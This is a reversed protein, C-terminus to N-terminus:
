CIYMALHSLCIHQACRVTLERWAKRVGSLLLLMKVQVALGAYINIASALVGGVVLAGYGLSFLM